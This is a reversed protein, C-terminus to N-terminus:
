AVWARHQQLRQGGLWLLRRSPAMASTPQPWPVLADRWRLRGNFDLARVRHRVEFGAARHARLSAENDWDVDSWACDFKPLWTDAVARLLHAFLRQGRHSPAVYADRVWFQEETLPLRWNMEDIYRHGGQAVWLSGALEGAVWLRGFRLGNAFRREPRGAPHRHALARYTEHVAGLQPAKLEELRLGAPAPAGPVIDHAQLLALDHRVLYMPLRRAIPQAGEIGPPL